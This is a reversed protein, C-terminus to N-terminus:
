TLSEVLQTYWIKQEAVREEQERLRQRAWELETEAGAISRKLWEDGSLLLPPETAPSEHCDFKIAELLQQELLARFPEHKPTPAQWARVQALMADYRQRVQTYNENSSVRQDLQGQHAEAAARTAQEPTTLLIGGLRVEARAVSDYYYSDVSDDPIGDRLNLKVTNLAFTKLDIITGDKVGWTYGNAM